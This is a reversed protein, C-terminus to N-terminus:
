GDWHLLVSALCMVARRRVESHGHHRVWEDGM